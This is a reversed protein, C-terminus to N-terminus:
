EESGLITSVPKSSYSGKIRIPYSMNKHIYTKGNNLKSLTGISISYKTCINKMSLECEKLDKVILQYIEESIKANGNQSGGKPIYKKKRLPYSLTIDFYTEGKDLRNITNRNCNYMEAIQYIPIDTNILLDRIKIIDEQSFKSAINNIGLAAGDGGETCNYGKNKDRTQYIKIYYKERESLKEREPVIELIEFEQINNNFYKTIAKYLVPQRKDYNHESIRRKIDVAKGIYSKGNPFNIKYIGSLRLPCDKKLIKM